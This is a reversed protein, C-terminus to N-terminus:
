RSRLAEAVARLNADWDEALPDAIAVKAGAEAAIIEATRRSFQPQVFVAAVRNRHAFDLITGLDRASPEKGNIEIAVQRLGFERTFYGWAPHFVLVPRGSDSGALITGISQQLKNIEIVFLSDSSRFEAAHAPIAACLAATMTEAQTKVLEPSLWIHPDLGEHSEHDVTGGTTAAHSDMQIKAINSDTHIITLAPYTATLRSLWAKELEIGIAFYLKANALDAMQKPKPEYTHESVGPPVLVIVRVLNGAIKDVFYKQPPITVAVVPLGSESSQKGCFLSFALLLATLFFIYKSAM